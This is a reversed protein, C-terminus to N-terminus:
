HDKGDRRETGLGLKVGREAPSSHLTMTAMKIEIHGRQCNFFPGASEGTISLLAIPTNVPRPTGSTASAAVAKMKALFHFLRIFSALTLGSAVCGIEVM